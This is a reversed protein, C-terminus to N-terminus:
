RLQHLKAGIANRLGVSSSPSLVSNKTRARGSQEVIRRRLRCSAFSRSPQWPAYALTGNEPGHVRDIVERRNDRLELRADTHEFNKSILVEDCRSLGNEIPLGVLNELCAFPVHLRSGTNHM